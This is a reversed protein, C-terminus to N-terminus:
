VNMIDEEALWKLIESCCQIDHQHSAFLKM